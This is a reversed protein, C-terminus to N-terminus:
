NGGGSRTVTAHLAHIGEPIRNAAVFMSFDSGVQDALVLDSAVPTDDDGWFVKIWDNEAMGLYAQLVIVLGKEHSHVMHHNVGGDADNVPIILRPIQLPDLDLVEAPQSDSTM